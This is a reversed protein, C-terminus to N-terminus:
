AARLMPEELPDLAFSYHWDYKALLAVPERARIVQHRGWRLPGALHYVHGLRESARQVRTVRRARLAEYRRFAAAINHPSKQVEDALAM